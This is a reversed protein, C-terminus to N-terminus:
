FVPSIRGQVGYERSLHYAWALMLISVVITFLFFLSRRGGALYGGIIGLILGTIHASLDIGPVLLDFILNIALIAGFERVFARYSAGFRERHFFMFGGLAGFLGFIAGSAGIIVTEPHLTMSVLFGGIGSLFYLILYDLLPFYLEVIRGVIYLSIMNLALHEPGGHLFLGSLLRWWEGGELVAPAYVGGCAILSSVPIDSWSGGCILEAVYGLLSLLILGWTLPFRAPSSM